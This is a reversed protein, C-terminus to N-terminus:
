KNSIGIASPSLSQTEMLKDLGITCVQNRPMGAYCGNNRASAAALFNVNADDYILHASEPGGGNGGASFGAGPTTAVSSSAKLGATSSSSHLYSLRTRSRYRLYFSCPPSMVKEHLFLLLTREALPFERSKSAGRVLANQLCPPEEEAKIM